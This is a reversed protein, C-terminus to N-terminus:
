RAHLDSDAARRGRDRLGGRALRAEFRLALMSGPVAGEPVKFTFDLTNSEHEREAFAEGLIEVHDADILQYVYVNAIEHGDAWLRGDLTQGPAADRDYSWLVLQKTEADATLRLFDGWAFAIILIAFAVLAGIGQGL